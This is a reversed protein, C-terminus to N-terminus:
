SCPQRDLDQCTTTGLGAPICGVQFDYVHSGPPCPQKLGDPGCPPIADAGTTEDCCVPTVQVCANPACTSLHVRGAPCTFAGTADCSGPVAGSTPDASCSQVCNVGAACATSGGQGGIGQPPGLEHNCAGFPLVALGSLLSVLAFSLTGQQATSRPMAWYGRQPGM